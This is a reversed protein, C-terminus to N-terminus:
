VTLSEMDAAILKCSYILTTGRCEFTVDPGAAEYRVVRDAEKTAGLVAHVSTKFEDGEHIGEVESLDICRKQNIPYDETKGHFAGSRQDQVDYHLVFGAHNLVCVRSAPAAASPDIPASSVFNCHYAVTVGDCQFAAANSNPVYKIAPDIVEHIGLIAESTARFIQGPQADPWIDTVDRCRTQDIPYPESAIARQHTPCNSYGWKM